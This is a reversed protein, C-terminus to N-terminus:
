DWLTGVYATYCELLASVEPRRNKRNQGRPKHQFYIVGWFNAQVSYNAVPLVTV